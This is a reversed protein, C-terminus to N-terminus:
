FNLRASLSNLVYEWLPDRPSGHVLTAQGRVRSTQPLSHLYELNDDTLVQQTWMLSRRADGNFTEFPMKGIVAVDHNGLLCTAEPLSRFLEVAANPDPGYGVLDGLSWVEDVPGAEAFVAEIANLNAHVDSIVLVRMM